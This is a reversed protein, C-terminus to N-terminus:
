IILQALLHSLRGGRFFGPIVPPLLLDGLTHYLAIKLGSVSELGYFRRAITKIRNNLGELAGDSDEKKAKFWNLILERLWRLSRAPLRDYGLGM